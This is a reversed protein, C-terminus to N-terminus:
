KLLKQLAEEAKVADQKAKELDSKAKELNWKAEREKALLDYREKKAKAKELREVEHIENVEGVSLEVITPTPYQKHQNAFYTVRSRAHGIKAFVRGKQPDDVWSDGYGNYGKRRFFQGKSNKVLYFKLDEVKM